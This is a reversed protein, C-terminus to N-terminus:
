LIFKDFNELFNTKPNMLTNPFKKPNLNHLIRALNEPLTSKKTLSTEHELIKKIMTQIRLTESVSIRGCKEILFASSTSLQNELTHVGYKKYEESSSDYYIQKFGNEEIIDLLRPIASSGFKAIVPKLQYQNINRSKAEICLNSNINLSIDVYLNFVTVIRTSDPLSNLYDLFPQPTYERIFKEIFTESNLRKIGKLLFEDSMDGCTILCAIEKNKIIKNKQLNKLCSVLISYIKSDRKTDSDDPLEISAVKTSFDHYKWDPVSWRLNKNLTNDTLRNNQNRYLNVKEQLGEETNASVCIYSFNNEGSTFLSIAYLHETKILNQLELLALNVSETLYRKFLENQNM